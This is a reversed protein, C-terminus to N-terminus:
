KYNMVWLVGGHLAEAQGIGIVGEKGGGPAQIFFGEGDVLAASETGLAADELARGVVEVDDYVVAIENGDEKPPLEVVDSVDLVEGDDGGQAAHLVALADEAAEKGLGVGGYPEFDLEGFVFETLAADVEVATDAEDEVVVGVQLGGVLFAGGGNGEEDHGVGCGDCRGVDAEEAEGVMGEEGVVALVAFARDFGTIGAEQGKTGATGAGGGLFVLGGGCVLRRGAARVTVCLCLGWVGGALM